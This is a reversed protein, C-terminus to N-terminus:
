PLTACGSDPGDTCIYVHEGDTCLSAIILNGICHISAKSAIRTKALACVVLQRASGGYAIRVREDGCRFSGTM